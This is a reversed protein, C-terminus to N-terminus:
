DAYSRAVRIPWPSCKVSRRIVTKGKNDKYKRVNGCALWATRFVIEMWVNMLARKEAKARAPRIV